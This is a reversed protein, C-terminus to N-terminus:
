SIMEHSKGNIYLAFSFRLDKFVQKKRKKGWLNDALNIQIHSPSYIHTHTSTHVLHTANDPCFSGVHGESFM